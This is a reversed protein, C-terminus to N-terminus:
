SSELKMHGPCETCQKAAEDVTLQSAPKITTLTRKIMITEKAYIKDEMIKYGDALKSNVENNPVSILATIEGKEEVPEIHEKLELSQCFPCVHVELTDTQSIGVPGVIKAPYIFVHGKDCEYQTTM